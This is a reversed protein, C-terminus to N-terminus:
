NTKKKQMAKMKKKNYTEDYFDVFLFLYSTLVFLGVIAGRQHGSCKGFFNYAFWGIYCALLDIIFQMIQMITVVKKWPMKVRLVAMAYYFYMVTHVFLNLLIVLWQMGTGDVLQGWTLVLTAPHHYCHLFSLPKHKLALFITDILEYYKLLYNVYFIFTLAGQQDYWSLGCYIKFPSYQSPDSVHLSYLTVMLFFALAASAACLFLNHFLILYKLPPSERDRMFYALLPIGLCYLLVSVFPYAINSLPTEDVRFYFEHMTSADVGTTTAILDIIGDRLAIASTM